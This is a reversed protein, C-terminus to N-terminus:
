EDVAIKLTPVHCVYMPSKLTLMELEDIDISLSM